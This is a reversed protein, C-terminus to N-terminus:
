LDGSFIGKIVRQWFRQPLKHPWEAWSGAQDYQIDNWGEGAYSVMIIKDGVGPEPEDPVIFLNYDDWDQPAIEDMPDDGPFYWVNLM